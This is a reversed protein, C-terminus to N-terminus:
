LNVYDQLFDREKPKIELFEVGVSYRDSHLLAYSWAIRGTPYLIRSSVNIELAIRTEPAIFRDNIFGIGGISINDCIANNFECAGIAQYRLATKLKIRPSRRKEKRDAM